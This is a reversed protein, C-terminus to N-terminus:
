TQKKKEAFFTKPVTEPHILPEDLMAVVFNFNSHVGLTPKSFSRPLDNCQNVVQM